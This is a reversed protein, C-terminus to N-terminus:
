TFPGGPYGNLVVIEDLARDVAGADFAIRLLPRYILRPDQRLRREALRDSFGTERCSTHSGKPIGDVDCQVPAAIM